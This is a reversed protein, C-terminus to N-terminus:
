WSPAESPPPPPPPEIWAGSAAYATGIGFALAAILAVLSGGKASEGETDEKWGTLMPKVLNDKKVRVYFVIAALHLAVLAYVLNSTLHHLGTLRDSLAKGVLQYFPGNFAIDDNAFLGTVVQLALLTLLALVSLAGLPNHGIGRWEGRLYSSLRAPTPLFHDFRAYTSGAIGWIVRFALLGAVAIGCRGHWDILNGGIQGTVLAGAVALVLLWHFLRTPLDWVLLRKKGGSM